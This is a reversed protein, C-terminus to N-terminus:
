EARVVGIAQRHAHHDLLLAVRQFRQQAIRQGVEVTGFQTDGLQVIGRAFSEARGLGVVVVEFADLGLQQEAVLADAREAAHEAEAVLRTIDGAAARQAVQGIDIGAAIRHEQFLRQVEAPGGEIGADTM